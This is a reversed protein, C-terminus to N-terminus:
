ADPTPLTDRNTERERSSLTWGLTVIALAGVILFLWGIGRGEVPTVEEIAFAPAASLMFIVVVATLARFQKM